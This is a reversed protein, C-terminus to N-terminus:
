ENPNVIDWIAETDLGLKWCAVGALEYRDILEMKLQLSREDEMWILQRADEGQLEGYYQGLEEQWYLSVNNETVWAQAADLGLAKSEGGETWRRTYFPIANIVKEKPVAAVTDKIGGEVFPLSAVSGPEGGSYHEDYGMIIVYDVVRGQEARNYGATYGSPVYNDVSLILGAVRCAASMERIFQVYDPMTDTSISEIDLNIGDIGFREAEAVLDGILKQRVSTKAFLVSSDLDDGRNFNDVVAWVQMGLEHAKDVYAQDALSDFNGGSDTLMLWTPAIVNVGKTRAILREMEGNDAEELTQHWVLCVREGLSLSTYEPEVFSSVPTEPRTSLIRKNQLWGIFGDATRVKSWEEGSELVTFEGGGAVTTLIPSKIGGRVRVQAEKEATGVTRPEWEDYLYLRPVGDDFLEARIDTYSSVLGVSLYVRDDEELLLPKGGSGMTRKDAYVVTDPLTYVLLKEVDDWYFKENLTENVWALPLYAQGDRVVADVDQLREDNYFFATGGDPVELAERVDAMEKSPIYRELYRAAVAGGAILLLLVIVVLVPIIRRKM